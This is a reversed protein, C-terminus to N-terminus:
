QWSHNGFWCAPFPLVIARWWKCVDTTRRCVGVCCVYVCACVYMCVYLYVCICMCVTDNNLPVQMTKLSYDLHFNICHGKRNGEVRRLKIEIHTQPKVRSHSKTNNFFAILDIYMCVCVYMYVYHYMFVDVCLTSCHMWTTLFVSLM